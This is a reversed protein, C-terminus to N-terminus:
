DEAPATAETSQDHGEVRRRIHERIDESATTGEAKCLALYPKWLADKIRIPRKDTGRSTVTSLTGM